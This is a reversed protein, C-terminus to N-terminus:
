TTKGGFYAKAKNIYKEAGGIGGIRYQQVLSFLTTIVWYLALGSPFKLAIFVTLLPMMFLMQKQMTQGMDAMGSKPPEKKQKNAKVQVSDEKPMMMLSLLFQSAGALIPLIYTTDPFRVDLWFFKTNMVISQADTHSLFDIFFRYLFILIVLQVIQPICGAIPNVKHQQYLALQAAQLAKPDKKHKTKLKELEPQLLRMKNMAVQSSKTLPYLIGRLVVTFVIISLGLSGTLGHLQIMVFTFIDTLWAM